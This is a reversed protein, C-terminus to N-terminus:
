RERIIKKAPRETKDRLVSDKKEKIAKQQSLEVLVDFYKGSISDRERYAQYIQKDKAVTIKEIKSDCDDRSRTSENIFYGVMILFVFAVVTAPYKKIDQITVPFNIPM